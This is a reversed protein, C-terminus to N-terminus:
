LTPMLAESKANQSLGAPRSCRRGAGATGLQLGTLWVIHSYSGRRDRDARLWGIFSVGSDAVSDTAWLFAFSTYARPLFGASLARNCRWDSSSATSLATKSSRTPRCTPAAAISRPHPGRPM